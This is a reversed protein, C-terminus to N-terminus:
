LKPRIIKRMSAYTYGNESDLEAAPLLRHYWRSLQDSSISSVNARLWSELAFQTAGAVATEAKGNTLESQLFRFGAEFGEADIIEATIREALAQRCTLDYESQGYMAAEACLEVTTDLSTAYALDALRPDTAQSSEEAVPQQKEQGEGCSALTVAAVAALLYKNM